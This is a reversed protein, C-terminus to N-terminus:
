YLAFRGLAGVLFDAAGALLVRVPVDRASWRLMVLPLMLHQLIIVILVM